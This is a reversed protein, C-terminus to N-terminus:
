RRPEVVVERRVVPFVGGRRALWADAALTDDDSLALGLAASALGLWAFGGGFRLAVPLFLAAYLAAWPTLFGLALALGGAAWVVAVAQAMLGADWLLTAGGLLAIALAIRLTFTAYRAESVGRRAVLLLVLAVGVGGLAPLAASDVAQTLTSAIGAALALGLLALQLRAALTM